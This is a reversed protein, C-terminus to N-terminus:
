KLFENTYIDDLKVPTKINYARLVIDRTKRMKERNIYGLGHKAAGPTFISENATIEWWGMNAVRNLAPNYKLLIDIAENPHAKSYRRAKLTARLFKRITDPHDRIYGETVVTGHSYIDLGLDAICLGAALGGLPKAKAELQLQGGMWQVTADVKGGILVAATGAPAVKILKVKSADIGNIKALIPFLVPAVGFPPLALSRGELDKLTKIGSRKLSWICMPHEEYIIEVLKVSIGKARALVVPAADVEALDSQKALVRKVGEASGYGRSIEVELGEQAYYGKEKAVLWPVKGGNVLWALGYKVRTKEASIGNNALIIVGVFALCTVLAMRSALKRM